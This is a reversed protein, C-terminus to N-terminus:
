LTESSNRGNYLLTEHDNDNRRNIRPLSRPSCIQCFCFTGSAMGFRAMELRLYPIHIVLDIRRNKMLKVVKGTITEDYLTFNDGIESNTSLTCKKPTFKGINLLNEYVESPNVLNFIQSQRLTNALIGGSKKWMHKEWTDATSKVKAKPINDHIFTVRCSKRTRM